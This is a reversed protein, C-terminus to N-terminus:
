ADRARLDRRAQTRVGAERRHRHALQRVVKAL